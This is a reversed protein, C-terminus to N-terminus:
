RHRRAARMEGMQRFLQRLRETAGPAIKERWADMRRCLDELNKMVTPNGMMTRMAPAIDRMKENVVWAEGTNEFFLEDNILGRNVLSACMEWYSTVMRFSSNEDSGPPYKTMFEESTAVAFDDIFWQRARRLREERRLEYLRLMLNAQEHTTDGMPKEKDLSHM